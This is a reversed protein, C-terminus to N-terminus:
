PLTHFPLFKEKRLTTRKRRIRGYRDKLYKMGLDVYYSFYSSIAPKEKFGVLSPFHETDIIVIKNTEKEIVFNNIHPDITYNFIESIKLALSKDDNKNISLTREIEIADAIIAYVAPVKVTIPSEEFNYGRIYFYERQEPMWFWKRPVDIYDYLESTSDIKERLQKRNKIRTFGLAHRTIGGGVVFQCAPEFGKNYPRIFSRPNEMFLKVIFPYHKCKVILLGAQKKTNFGKGKLVIFDKYVKKKAKIEKLFNEIMEKLIIGEVSKSADTRFTIATQPLLHDKLHSLDYLSFTPYWELISDRLVYYSKDGPKKYTIIVPDSYLSSSRLCSRTGQITSLSTTLMILMYYMKIKM